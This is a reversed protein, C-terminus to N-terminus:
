FDWFDEVEEHLHPYKDVFKTVFIRRFALASFWSVLFGVIGIGVLTDAVVVGELSNALIFFGAGFFILAIAAVHSFVFLDPSHILFKELKTPEQNIEKMTDEM